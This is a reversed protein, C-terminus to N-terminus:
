VNVSMEEDSLNWPLFFDEHLDAEIEKIHLLLFRKNKSLLYLRKGNDNRILIGTIWDYFSFARKKVSECM